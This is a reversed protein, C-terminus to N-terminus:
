INGRIWPTSLKSKVHWWTSSTSTKWLKRSMEGYVWFMFNVAYTKKQGAM